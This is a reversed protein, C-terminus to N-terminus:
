QAVGASKLEQILACRMQACQESLDANTQLIATEELANIARLLELLSRVVVHDADEPQPLVWSLLKSVAPWGPVFRSLFPYIVAALAPIVTEIWSTSFQYSGIAACEAQGYVCAVCAYAVAAASISKYLM